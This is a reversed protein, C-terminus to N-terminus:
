LAIATAPGGRGALRRGGRCVCRGGGRVERSCRGATSRGTHCGFGVHRKRRERQHTGAWDPLAVSAISLPRTQLPDWRGDRPGRPRLRDASTRRSCRRNRGGRHRRWSHQVGPGPSTRPTGSGGTARGTAGGGGVAGHAITRGARGRDAGGDRYAVIGLAVTLAWEATWAAFYSLQARRLNDNVANSAFASAAVKLRSRLPQNM